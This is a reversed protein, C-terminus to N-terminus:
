YDYKPDLYLLRAYQGSMDHVGGPLRATNSEKAMHVDVGLGKLRAWFEEREKWFRERERRNARDVRDCAVGWDMIADHYQSRSCGTREPEKPYSKGEPAYEHDYWAQNSKNGSFIVARLKYTKALYRQVNGFRSRDINDSEVVFYDRYHFVASGSGKKSRTCIAGVRGFYRVISTQPGPHRVVKLWDSVTTFNSAYWADGSEALEGCWVVADRPWMARWFTKAQELPDDSIPVPSIARWMEDTILPEGLLLPLTKNKAAAELKGLWRRRAELSPDPKCILLGSASLAKRLEANFESVEEACRQHLCHLFPVPSDDLYLRADAHGGPCVCQATHSNIWRLIEIQKLDNIIRKRGALITQSEPNPMSLYFRAPTATAPTATSIATRVGSSAEM